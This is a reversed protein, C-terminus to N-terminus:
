DLFGASLCFAILDDLTRLIRMSQGSKSVRVIEVWQEKIVGRKKRSSKLSALFRGVDSDLSGDFDLFDLGLQTIKFGFPNYGALLGGGRPVRIAQRTQSTLKLDLYSLSLLDEKSLVKENSTGVKQMSLPQKRGECLLSFQLLLLVFFSQFKSM